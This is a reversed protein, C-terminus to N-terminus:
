NNKPCIKVFETHLKNRYNQYKEKYFQWDTSECNMIDNYINNLNGFNKIYGYTGLQIGFDYLRLVHWLSKKARYLDYDKSNHDMKKKAKVWSNSCISSITKRLKANDIKFVNIKNKSIYFKDNLGLTELVIINHENLMKNFTDITFFQYDNENYRYEFIQGEYKSFDFETDNTVICIIDKDSKENSTGYVYSGRYFQIITKDLLYNLINM